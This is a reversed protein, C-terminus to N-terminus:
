ADRAEYRSVLLGLERAIRPHEHCFRHCTECLALLNDKDLISGGASRRLVEHVHKTRVTCRAATAAEAATRPVAGMDNLLRTGILVGAQCKPRAELLGAVVARRGGSGAYEKEKKASRMRMPKRQKAPAPGQREAMGLCKRRNLGMAFPFVAGCKKKARRAEDAPYDCGCGCTPCVYRITETRKM